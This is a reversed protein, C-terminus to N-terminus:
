EKVFKEWFLSTTAAPFFSDKFKMGPVHTALSDQGRFYRDLGYNCAM